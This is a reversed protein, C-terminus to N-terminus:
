LKNDNARPENRLIYLARFKMRAVHPPVIRPKLAKFAFFPSTHMTSLGQWSTRSNHPLARFNKAITHRGCSCKVDCSMRQPSRFQFGRGKLVTDYLTCGQTAGQLRKCALFYIQGTVLRERCKEQFNLMSTGDQM